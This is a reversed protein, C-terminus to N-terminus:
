LRHITLLYPAKADHNVAVHETARWKSNSLSRAFSRLAEAERRGEEHGPYVTLSACGGEALKPLVWSDLAGLTSEAMTPRREAASPLFGLNFVVLKMEEVDPPPYEHSQEYLEVGQVRRRCEEIACPDIDMGIVRGSRALSVLELLDHGNGCTADVVVDSPCLVSRWVAKALTLHSSRMVSLLILALM